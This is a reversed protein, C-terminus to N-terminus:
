ISHFIRIELRHSIELVGRVGLSDVRAHLYINHTTRYHGLLPHGSLGLLYESPYPRFSELVMNYYIFIFIGQRIYHKLTAYTIARLRLSSFSTKIFGLQLSFYIYFFSKNVQINSLLICPTYILFLNLGLQFLLFIPDFM